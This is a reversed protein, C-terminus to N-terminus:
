RGIVIFIASISAIFLGALGIWNLPTAFDNFDILVQRGLVNWSWSPLRASGSLNVSFLGSVSCKLDAWSDMFRSKSSLVRDEAVPDLTTSGDAPINLTGPLSIPDTSDEPMNVNVTANPIGSIADVIKDTDSTMQEKLAETSSGISEGITTGVGQMNGNLDNLGNAVDLLGRNVGGLQLIEREQNLAMEQHNSKLTSVVKETNLYMDNSLLKQSREMQDILKQFEINDSEPKPIDQPDHPLTSNTGVPSNDDLNTDIDDGPSTSANADNPLDFYDALQEGTLYVVDISVCARNNRGDQTAADYAAKSSSFKSKNYYINQEGCGGSVEFVYFFGECINRVRWVRFKDNPTDPCPDYDDTLGDGDTDPPFVVTPDVPGSPDLDYRTIEYTTGYLFKTKQFVVGGFFSYSVGFGAANTSYIAVSVTTKVVKYLLGNYSIYTSGNVEHVATVNPDYAAYSSPCIISFILLLLCSRILLRVRM